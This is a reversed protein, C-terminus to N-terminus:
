VKVYTIYPNTMSSGNLAIHTERGIFGDLSDDKGHGNGPLSLPDWANVFLTTKPNIMQINYPFLGIEQFDEGTAEEVADMASTGAAGMFVTKLSRNKNYIRLFAPAWVRTQFSRIRTGENSPGPVDTPGPYQKAFSKGGVLSMVVTKMKLDRACKYIKTFVQEYARTLWKERNEHDLTILFKYDPQKKSDFAYGIAHIIHILTNTSGNFDVFTPTYVAINPALKGTESFYRLYFGKSWGFHNALAKQDYLRKTGINVPEREYVLRRVLALNDHRSYYARVPKMVTDFHKIVKASAWTPFAHGPHYIKRIIKAQELFKQKAVSEQSKTVKTMPKKSKKSKKSKKTKTTSRKSKVSSRTKKNSLKKREAQEKLLKRQTHCLFRIVEIHKPMNRTSYYWNGNASKRKVGCTNEVVKWIDDDM